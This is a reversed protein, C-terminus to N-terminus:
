VDSVVIGDLVDGEDNEYYKKTVVDPREAVQEMLKVPYFTVSIDEFGPVQRLISATANTCFADPVSGNTKVLNLAIEAQQPSVKIEQTVVHFTSRAHASKYTQEWGPSFGYIVDRRRTAQEHRFSGAPDFIVRQSGSVILATHGGAGTRNNVVTLLTLRPSETPVYAARAVEEVSADDASSVACGCLSAMALCAIVARLLKRFSPPAM